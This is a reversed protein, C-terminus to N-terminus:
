QGGVWVFEGRVVEVLGLREKCDVFITLEIGVVGSGVEEVYM